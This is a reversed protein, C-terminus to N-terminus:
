QATVIRFIFFLFFCSHMGTPHTGGVQQGYGLMCKAPSTYRLICQDPPTYGLMGKAPPHRGLPHRSPLCRGHLTDAWHPNHRGLPHRGHPNHRGPPPTQGPLPNQGPPTAYVGSYVSHNVSLHLFMVKSCSQQPCYIYSLKHLM